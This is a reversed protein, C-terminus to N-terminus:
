TLLLTPVLLVHDGVILGWRGQNQIGDSCTPPAPTFCSIAAQWGTNTISGDSDFVFTLCGSTSVITGPNTTFPSGPVQPSATNPGDYVTLDDCCIELGFASFIFQLEDGPQDSCFTMTFLENNGYDSNGGSDFFNGSCTNITANSMGYNQAISTMGVTLLSAFVISKLFNIRM